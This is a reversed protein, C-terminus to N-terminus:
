SRWFLFPFLLGGSKASETGDFPGGAASTPGSNHLLILATTPQSCDNEPALSSRDAWMRRAFKMAALYYNRLTARLGSAL